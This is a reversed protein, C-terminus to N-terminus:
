NMNNMRPLVHTLLTTSHKHVRHLLIARLLERRDTHTQGDTFLALPGEIYVVM